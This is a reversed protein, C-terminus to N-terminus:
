SGTCAFIHTPTRDITNIIPDTPAPKHLYDDGFELFQSRVRGVGGALISPSEITYPHHHEISRQFEHIIVHSRDPNM